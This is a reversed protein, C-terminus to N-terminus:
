ASPPNVYAWRYPKAPYWREDFHQTEPELFGLYCPFKNYEDNCWLLVQMDTLPKEIDPDKWDLGKSM